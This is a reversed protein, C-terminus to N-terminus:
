WVRCLWARQTGVVRHDLWNACDAVKVAGVTIVQVFFIQQAAGAFKLNRIRDKFGVDSLVDLPLVAVLYHERPLAALWGQQPQLEEMLDDLEFLLVLLWVLANFIIELCVARQKVVLPSGKKFLVSEEDTQADVSGFFKVVLIADGLVALRGEVLYECRCLHQMPMSYREICQTHDIADVRFTRKIYITEQFIFDTWALHLENRTDLGLDELVYSGLM